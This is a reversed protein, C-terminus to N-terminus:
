WLFMGLGKYSWIKMRRVASPSDSFVIIESAPHGAGVRELAKEYYEESLHMHPLGGYDGRRVHVAVWATNGELKKRWVSFDPSPETVKTLESRLRDKIGEAYGWSQFYGRFRTGDRVSLLRQDFGAASDYVINRLTIPFGLRRSYRHAQYRFSTKPPIVPAPELSVSSAFSSLEFRRNPDSDIRTRDAVLSTRLRSANALGIAYVFLQNGLGGIPEIVIM